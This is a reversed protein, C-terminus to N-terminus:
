QPECFFVDRCLHDDPGFTVHKFRAKLAFILLDQHYVQDPTLNSLVVVPVNRKKQVRTGGKVALNVVQGDVFANIFSIPKQGTFEDIVVLDYLDDDWGEIYKEDMTLTFIRLYKAMEAFFTTKGKSPESTIWLQPSKIPRDKARVETSIWVAIQRMAEGARDKVGVGMWEKLVISAIAAEKAINWMAYINKHHALAVSPFMKLIEFPKHEGSISANFVQELIKAAKKKNSEEFLARFHDVSGVTAVYRQNNDKLGYLFAKSLSLNFPGSGKKMITQYSGNYGVVRNLTRSNHKRERRLCLCAHLHLDGIEQGEEPVHNEQAVILHEVDCPGYLKSLVEFVRAPELPCKPWTCHVYRSVTSWSKSEDEVQQTQEVLQTPEYIARAVQEVEEEEGDELLRSSETQSSSLSRVQLPSPDFLIPSEERKRKALPARLYDVMSSMDLKFSEMIDYLRWFDRTFKNAEQIDAVAFDLPNKLIFTFTQVQALCQKMRRLIRWHHTPYAPNLNGLYEHVLIVDEETVPLSSLAFNDGDRESGFIPPTIARNMLFIKLVTPLLLCNKYKKFLFIYIKQSSVKRILFDRSMLTSLIVAM